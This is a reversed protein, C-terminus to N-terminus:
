RKHYDDTHLLVAKLMKLFEILKCTVQLACRITFNMLYNFGYKIFKWAVEIKKLSLFLYFSKNESGLKSKKRLAKM